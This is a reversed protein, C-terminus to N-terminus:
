CTLYESDDTMFLGLERFKGTAYTYCLHRYQHFKTNQMIYEKETEAKDGSEWIIMQSVNKNIKDMFKDRITENSFYHYFVTLMIAIDYKVNEEYEEFKQTVIRCDTYLLKNVKETLEYHFPDYEILTVDAGMRCFAQGMYGLCAGIDLVKKGAFRAANFNELLHHLRSKSFGERYTHLNFFYPNLIPQYFEKRGQEKIFRRVEWAVEKNCWLEYDKKTIQVPMRTLGSYYLFSTRHHGDMLNFYGKPNWRAVAPHELFFTMGQNLERQMNMFERYRKEIIQEDTYGSTLGRSIFLYQFWKCYKDPYSTGNLFFQFLNRYPEFAIVPHNEWVRNQRKWEDTYVPLHNDEQRESFLLEVPVWAVVHNEGLERILASDETKECLAITNNYYQRDNRCRKINSLLAPFIDFLNDLDPLQELYRQNVEKLVLENVAFFVKKLDIGEAICKELLIDNERAVCVVLYDHELAGIDEPSYVRYGMFQSDKKYSDVFAIIEHGAFYDLKMYRAALRGTGWILIKM